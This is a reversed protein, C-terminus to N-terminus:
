FKMQKKKALFQLIEDANEDDINQTFFLNRFWISRSARGEAFMYGTQECIKLNTFEQKIVDLAFGQYSVKLICEEYKGGHAIDILGM